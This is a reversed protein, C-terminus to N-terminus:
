YRDDRSRSRTRSRGDRSRSRSKKKAHANGSLAGIVAGGLTGVGPGLLVDGIIGGAGAGLFSDRSEHSKKKEHKQHHHHHNKHPHDDYPQQQQQQPPPYANQQPPYGNAQNPPPQYYPSNQPYPQLQQQQQQCGRSVCTLRASMSNTSEASPHCVQPYQHSSGYYHQSPHYHSNYAQQWPAGPQPPPYVDRKSEPRPSPRIALQQTQGYNASYPPPPAHNAQPHPPFNQAGAYYDNAAM